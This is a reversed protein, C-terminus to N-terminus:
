LSDDSSISSVDSAYAADVDAKRPQAQKGVPTGRAYAYSRAIPPRQGPRARASMPTGFVGNSRQKMAPDDGDEDSVHEDVLDPPLMWVGAGAGSFEGLAAAALLPDGEGRPSLSGGGSGGAGGGSLARRM